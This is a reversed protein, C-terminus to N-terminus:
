ITGLIIFQYLTRAKDGKKLLLGQKVGFSLDRSATATSIKKFFSLYEKRSFVTTQNKDNFLQLRNSATLPEPKIQQMFDSVAQYIITLMFEIFLTSNGAKDCKGLVDYYDSQNNKIVSEIPIFEFINQWNYLIATQWLRGLRGNGDSFPHIFELEYHCISSLILPNINNEKKLFIFLDSILKPVFTHKPAIHAVKRGEFVGVNRSRLKGADTAIGSMLIKHANLLSNISLINFSALLGYAKIANKVEKIDKKPGIVQKGNLIATVQEKTLRNGEILLSSHITRVRNEQRLKIVPKPYQLGEYKGLLQSIETIVNIMKNTISFPPNMNTITDYSVIMM